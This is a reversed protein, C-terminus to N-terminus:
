RRRIAASIALLVVGATGLFAIPVLPNTDGTQPLAPQSASASAGPKETSSADPTTSGVGPTAPGSPTTPKEDTSAPLAPVKETAGRYGCVKCVQQRTGESTTTPAVITEWEFAHEARDIVEGCNCVLWHSDADTHWGSADAEHKLIGEVTVVVDAEANNIAIMGGSGPNVVQGNLKVAFDDTAFYGDSISVTIIASGHWPIETATTTALCGSGSAPVTVTLMRGPKVTVSTAPSADHNERAAYRVEYTGPELDSVEGNETVSTWTADSSRRWEMGTTLSTISGDHKGYISEAAAQVAPAGQEANSISFTCTLGDSPLAYNAADSGTLKTITARYADGAETAEGEVTASLDDDGIVNGLTAEPCHANGDYVFETTGWTVTLARREISFTGGEFTVDYNPNAGEAQSATIAYGGERVAEGTERGVTIGSLSEGEVLEGGTIEWGLEPDAEGYTKSADAAGVTLERPTVKLTVQGTTTEGDYELRYDVTKEGVNKITPADSSWTAGGDTSYSATVGEPLTATVSHEQGDYEDDYGTVSASDLPTGSITWCTYASGTYSGMGKIYILYYPFYSSKSPPTSASPTSYESTVVTYDVGEKLTIWGNDYRQVTFKPTITEGTAEYARVTAGEIKTDTGGEFFFTIGAKKLDLPTVEFQRTLTITDGTASTVVVEVLYKGPSAPTGYFPEPTADWSSLSYYSVGTITAIGRSLTGTATNSTKLQPTLTTGGAVSLRDGSETANELSLDVTYGSYGCDDPRATGVCKVSTRYSRNADATLQWVHEHQVRRVYLTGDETELTAGANTSTLRQALQESTLGCSGIDMSLRTIESDDITVPVSGTFSSAVNLRGNGGIGYLKLAGAKTTSIRTYGDLTLAGNCYVANRNEDQEKEGTYASEFVDSVTTGSLTCSASSAIAIASTMPMDYTTGWSTVKYACPGSWTSSRAQSAVICGSLTLNANKVIINGSHLHESDLSGKINESVTCYNSTQANNTFTCGTLKVSPKLSSDSTVSLAGTCTGTNNRFTCGSFTVYPASTKNKETMRITVPGPSNKYLSIDHSFYGTSYPTRWDSVTVSEFRITEGDLACGYLQVATASYSTNRNGSITLDKVKVNLQGSRTPMDNAYISTETKDSLFVRGDCNVTTSSGTDGIIEIYGNEIAFLPLWPGDGRKDNLTGTIYIRTPNASTGGKVLYQTIDVDGSLVYSKGAELTIKTEGYAYPLESKLQTPKIADAPAAIAPTPAALTAAVADASALTGALACAFLSKLLTKKM